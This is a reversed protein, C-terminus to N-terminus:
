SVAWAPNYSGLPTDLKFWGPLKAYVKVNDNLKFSQVFTREVDSDYVMHEYISKNAEAMNKSLYGYVEEKEFLEQAYYYDGGLKQYKFVDGVRGHQRNDIIM